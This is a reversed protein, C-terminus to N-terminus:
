QEVGAVKMPDVVTMDGQHEFDLEEALFVSRRRGSNVSTFELFDNELNKSLHASTVAAVSLDLPAASDDALYDGDSTLDEAIYDGRAEARSESSEAASLLISMPSMVEEREEEVVEVVVEEDDEEENEDEEEQEEELETTIEQDTNALNVLIIIPPGEEDLFSDNAENDRCLLIDESPILHNSNMHAKLDNKTRCTHNCQSCKQM